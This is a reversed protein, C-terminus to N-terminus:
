TVREETRQRPVSEPPPTGYLRPDGPSLVPVAGHAEGTASQFEGKGDPTPGSAWGGSTGAGGDSFQLYQYSFETHEEDQPFADPVPTDELGDSKLEDIAAMWQNQHMTDRALLFRLLDRIGPDETMNFLRAVQLRGQSEATVNARFDALLNGSAIIYRGNWPFGVSDAPMAGAGGVIAHQPNEGGFVAALALNDDAAAEQVSLPAGELLRCIMTALMECHALEETGIDLLMDKYKGPLRANWGQFLYQMAVTIEGWAGGLVEQLRNAFAADPGDPRAEFQLALEHRFM